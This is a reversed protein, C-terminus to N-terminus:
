HKETAENYKNCLYCFMILMIGGILGGAVYVMTLDAEEEKIMDTVEFSDLLTAKANLPNQDLYSYTIKFAGKAKTNFLTM